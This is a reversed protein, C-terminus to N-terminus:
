WIIKTIKQKLPKTYKDLESRLREYLRSGPKFRQAIQDLIAAVLRRCDILYKEDNTGIQALGYDILYMRGNDDLMFNNSHTDNHTIGADHLKKILSIASAALQEIDRVIVRESSSLLLDSIIRDLTVALPAMIISCGVNNYMVERLPPAIGIEAAISHIRVERRARAEPIERDYIIQKLINMVEAENWVMYISGYASKESLREGIYWPGHCPEDFTDVSSCEIAEYSEIGEYGEYGEIGDDNITYIKCKDDDCSM